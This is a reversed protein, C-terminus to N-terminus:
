ALVRALAEALDGPGFPKRLVIADDGMVADIAESKAFGTAFIVRIDPWRELTERAVEAGNMGPMAFDIVMADPQRAEVMMLATRGDQALEVSCGFDELLSGVVERVAEEDDVVLVSLGSLRDVHEALIPLGREVIPEGADAAPLYITVTTGRGLTSEIDVTGGSQRTMGFVMSLGLGSGQGVPRTTFFPEFARARTERSMGVGTDNVSIALYDGDPVDDRESLRRDVAAITLKGGDPMADRANLCLNLVAHEIQVQDGVVRGSSGGFDTTITITPGITRGLLEELETIVPRVDIPRLELRQLRSFALLQGTLRKGREIAGMASNVLRALKDDDSVRRVIIELSGNVVQLLNNFDHAIGGTLQGVAEMKQAQLLKAETKEREAIEARLAALAADREAIRASLAENAERLRAPSPLAIARPLLPWLLIATFVSAVATVAKILAEAAYDGHWLNWIALVHTTGCATIFLAFLWFIGGFAIDRRKRVFVILAMPISFYALAILADSVAHTWILWPQWLLCYGHPAYSTGVFERILELM